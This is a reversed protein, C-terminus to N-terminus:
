NRLIEEHNKSAIGAKLLFRDGLFSNRGHLIRQDNMIVADREKLSISITEGSLFINEELFDHFEECMEIVEQSNEESIVAYNWNIIPGLDDFSLIKTSNQFIPSPQKGFIVTKMQMQEFLNPKFKKLLKVLDSSDYFVTAGGFDAAKKCILLVLDLEISANCYDTHLPQHKNSHKYTQNIYREDFRITTWSDHIIKKNIPDVDKRFLLGLTEGLDKYFIDLDIHEPLNQIVVVKNQNVLEIINNKITDFYDVHKIFNM